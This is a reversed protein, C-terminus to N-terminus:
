ESTLSPLAQKLDDTLKAIASISSQDKCPNKDLPLYYYEYGGALAVKTAKATTGNQPLSQDKPYRFVTGLIGAAACPHAKQLSVTTLQMFGSAPPNEAYSLDALSQPVKFMIGFDKVLLNRLGAGSDSGSGSAAGGDSASKTAGQTTTGQMGSPNPNTVGLSGPGSASGVRKDELESHLEDNDSRLSQNQRWLWFGGGGALLLVLTLLMSLTLTASPRFRRM